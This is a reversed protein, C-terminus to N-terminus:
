SVYLPDINFPSPKFTGDGNGLLVSV